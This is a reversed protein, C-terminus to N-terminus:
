EQDQRHDTQLCITLLCRPRHRDPLIRAYQQNSAHYPIERGTRHQHSIVIGRRCFRVSQRLVTLVHHCLHFAPQRNRRVHIRQVQIIQPRSQRRLHFPILIPEALVHAKFRLNLHFVHIIIVRYCVRSLILTPRIFVRFLPELLYYFPIAQIGRHKDRRFFYPLLYIQPRLAVSEHTQQFPLAPLIGEQAHVVIHIM